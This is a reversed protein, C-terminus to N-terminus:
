YVGARSQVQMHMERKNSLVRWTLITVGRSISTQTTGSLATM